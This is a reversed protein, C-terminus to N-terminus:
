EIQKNKETVTISTVRDDGKLRMLIVGQTARGLLSIDKIALKIVQGNKSVMILNESNSSVIQANILDGTKPTIKATKVGIGGRNQLQYNNLSTRKGYGNAMVVLLALNNLEKKDKINSKNVIDMAVSEDGKRLKMGRVGITGRGMPRINKESFRIAQGQKSVMIIEDGKKVTKVWKLEDDPRIKIALLGSKRINEFQELPTKKIMGNKTAMVLFDAKQRDALSIVANVKEESSLHLFNVIAQGKSTRSGTPIEYVKLQYVKGLNTFFLVDDHTFSTFLHKVVDEERPVVGIIGKGGRQQTRYTALPMRKIYNGQTLTIIVEENPILDEESFEGVKGKYVKTLRESSYKEKIEILENKIIELIKQPDALIAKLEKILALKEKLEDIIKKRELAALQQLKMELIANAQRDTFKFQRCLNRFADDRDKSQKITKIVADLNDLAKKLGELIHAREEAQQLDFRTRREVVEQRHKIYEQLVMKLTLLRPEIENVLAVMNVYFVQQLSTYKYLQNLIKQPFSDRKLDIVIRLGEKDSEDRLDSVGNIKKNKILEAIKEVLMAKNVQFPLETIVIRYGKKHEEINAIGRMLIHGKGTAYANKIEQLNYIVGGTPFDPGKIFKLLDDITAEPNDILHCIADCVEGLNHPPINSAMGVAIGLTGNILLNPLKAPLVKPEKQTGDYNDMFDVTNKEIDSLLEETIKSMRAETYRMAAAPDGDISGFNGQGDILPYRMNFDQALRVMADYVAIDGHPHYKGLVEGVVTASKRYKANWRLGLNHMVYLIRRHVPKLGDRVDPLARSVIVSMAYDLYSNKMEEEIEVPKIYGIEIKNESSSKKNSDSM